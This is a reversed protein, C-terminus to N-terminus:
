SKLTMQVEDLIITGEKGYLLADKFHEFSRPLSSLLLLVKDVVYIKVKINELDDIIKHVKTLQEVISKHEVM